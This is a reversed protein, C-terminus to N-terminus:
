SDGHCLESVKSQAPVSNAKRMTDFLQNPKAKRNPQRLAAFSAARFLVEDSYIKGIGVALARHHSCNIDHKSSAVNAEFAYSNSADGLADTRRRCSDAVRRFIEVEVLAPM